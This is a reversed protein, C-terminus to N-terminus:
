RWGRSKEAAKKYRSANFFKDLSCGWGVMNKKLHSTRYIFLMLGITSILLGVSLLVQHCEVTPKFFLRVMSLFFCWVLLLTGIRVFFYSLDDAALASPHSEIGKYSAVGGYLSQDQYELIKSYNHIADTLLYVALLFCLEALAISLVILGTQPQWDNVLEMQIWLMVFDNDAALFCAGAVVGMVIGIFHRTHELSGIRIKVVDTTYSSM